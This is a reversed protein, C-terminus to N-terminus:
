IIIVDNRKNQKQIEVSINDNDKKCKFESLAKFHVDNRLISFSLMQLIRLLETHDKDIHNKYTLPAQNILEYCKLM